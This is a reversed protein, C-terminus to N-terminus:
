ILEHLRQENDQLMEYLGAWLMADEHDGAEGRVFQDYFTDSSQHYKTEFEQLDLRINLIGKRLEAVQYAIINQVFTEQDPTLALVKKLRQETQPCIHLELQVM